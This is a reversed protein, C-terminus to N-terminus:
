LLYYVRPETGLHEKLRMVRPSVILQSVLTNGEADGFYTARGICSSVCAPLLGNEVRHLCFHCKRANGVPSKNKQRIWKQGYEWTPAKEYPMIQPTPDTYYEGFDFSRAGYPCATLCYRCGICKTYDIVVIGDAQKWTARVPCVRVCPPNDCQMCPRPLFRRGVRGNEELTEELVPRYTVNPPLVNEAKCSITCASCGVCKKLDIVMVWHRKEKPKELAKELQQRLAVLLDTSESALGLVGKDKAQEWM